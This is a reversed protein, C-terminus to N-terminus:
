YDTLVATRQNIEGTLLEEAGENTLCHVLLKGEYDDITVTGPSLTIANGLTAQGVPGKPKAEIEVVSPNIPLKPNLIIKAVDIGSKIIGVLLWAWYGPLRPIIRLGSPQRFFGVRHAIYICLLCSFVGLGLVIPKYIGSWLLWAAILIVLLIFISSIRIKQYDSM